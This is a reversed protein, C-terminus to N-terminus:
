LAAVMPDAKEFYRVINQPVAYQKKATQRIVRVAGLGDCLYQGIRHQGRRYSPDFLVRQLTLVFKEVAEDDGTTPMGLAAERALLHEFMPDAQVGARPIAVRVTGLALAEQMVTGDPAFLVDCQMLSATHNFREKSVVVKMGSGNALNKLTDDDACDPGPLITLVPKWDTAHEPPVVRSIAKALLPLVKVTDLNETAVSLRTAVTPHGPHKGVKRTTELRLPAYNAGRLIRTYGNGSQVGLDSGYPKGIVFWDSWTDVGEDCIVVVEIGAKWLMKQYGTEYHNGILYLLPRPSRADVRKPIQPKITEILRAVEQQPSLPESWTTLTARKPLHSAILEAGAPDTLITTHDIKEFEAAQALAIARTLHLTGFGKERTAKIWIHLEAM